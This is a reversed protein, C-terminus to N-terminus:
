KDVEAILKEAAATEGILYAVSQTHNNPLVAVVPLDAM